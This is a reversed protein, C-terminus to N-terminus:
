FNTEFYESQSSKECDKNIFLVYNRIMLAYIYILASQVFLFLLPM